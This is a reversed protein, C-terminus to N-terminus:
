QCRRWKGWRGLQRIRGRTYIGVCRRLHPLSEQGLAQRFYRPISKPSIRQVVFRILNWDIKRRRFFRKLTLGRTTINAFYALVDGRQSRAMIRPTIIKQQRPSLYEYLTILIDSEHDIATQILKDSIIEQDEPSLGELFHFVPIDNGSALYNNLTACLINSPIDFLHNHSM